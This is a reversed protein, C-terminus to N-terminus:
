HRSNLRTSKRNTHDDCQQGVDHWLNDAHEVADACLKRQQRARQDCQGIKQAFPANVQCDQDAGTGEDKGAHHARGRELSAHMGEHQAERQDATERPAAIGSAERAREADQEAGAYRDEILDSSCVDSSWDSILMEYATKQKFFFFYWM